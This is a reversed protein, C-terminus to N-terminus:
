LRATEWNKILAGRLIKDVEKETAKVFNGFYSMSVVPKNKFYVTELGMFIGNGMNYVDRYLFDKEQYELQHLKPFVPTVERKGGAYTKSRAKLLFDLM